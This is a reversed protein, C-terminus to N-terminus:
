SLLYAVYNRVDPADDDDEVRDALTRLANNVASDERAAKNVLSKVTADRAHRSQRMSGVLSEYFDVLSLHMLTDSTDVMSLAAWQLLGQGTEATLPQMDLAALTPLLRLLRGQSITVDYTLRCPDHGLTCLHRILALNDDDELIIPWIRGRGPPRPEHGTGNVVEASSCDTELVRALVRAAGEGVGVDPSGLWLRLLETVIDPLEALREAEAPSSAAKGVIALALLNAAPLPSRLANLLSTRDAFTLAQALSLPSILKISLSLLPSPDHETQTKLLQALRPLLIPILPRINQDPYPITLKTSSSQTPPSSPDNSLAEVHAQLEPLGSIPATPSRLPVIIDDAM